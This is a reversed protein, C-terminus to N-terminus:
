RARSGLYATVEERDHYLQKCRLTFPVDSAAAADKVTELCASVEQFRSKMPLKLNFIIDRAAGEAFWDGVLRAVRSPQEVMDCVMWAVPHPPRFKFGDARVHEVLGSSLLRADMPGNDVATVHMSRRVFQYTWGGPAAGLDVARAGPRLRAEREEASMLVHFAEELKLTSRSPAANPFKLRPIGMFWSSANAPFSVGVYAAQASLFLVHLRPADPDSAAEAFGASRLGAVFPHTFSKCFAQLEKAANTDATEVWAGSFIKGPLATSLHTEIHAVLPSVRDSDPLGSVLPAAFILQRAFVFKRFDLGAQLTGAAAADFGEFTVFGADKKARVYGKVGFLEAKAMIESACEGEFGPRCYLLITQM